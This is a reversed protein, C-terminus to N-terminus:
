RGPGPAGLPDFQQHEVIWKTLRPVVWFGYIGLTIITLFWWKVWHGFLSPATGAFQLRHGGIYTHKAQWRFKMVIAWPLCIGLTLVTVFFGALAVGLYSGAGGDFAFARLQPNFQQQPSYQAQQPAYQLQQVSQTPAM